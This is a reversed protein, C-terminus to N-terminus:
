KRAKAKIRDVDRDICVIDAHKPPLANHYIESAKQLYIFAKDFDRMDEYLLGMNRYTAGVSPHDPPLSRLRNRLCHEYHELALDFQEMYRYVIGM